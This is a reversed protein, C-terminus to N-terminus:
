KEELLTFCNTLWLNLLSTIKSLLPSTKGSFSYRLSEDLELIFYVNKLKINFEGLHLTLVPTENLFADKIVIQLQLLIQEALVQVM